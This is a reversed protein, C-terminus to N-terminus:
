RSGRQAKLWATLGEVGGQEYADCGSKVDDDAAPYLATLVQMTVVVATRAAQLTPPAPGRRDAAWAEFSELGMARLVTLGDDVAASAGPYLADLVKTRDAQNKLRQADRHDPLEPSTSREISPMPTTAEQRRGYGRSPVGGAAKVM